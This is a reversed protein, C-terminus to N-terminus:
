EKKFTNLYMLKRVKPAEMVLTKSQMSTPGDNM